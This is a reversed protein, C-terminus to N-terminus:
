KFFIYKKIKLHAFFSTFYIDRSYYITARQFISYVAALLAFTLAQFLFRLRSFKLTYSDLWILDLSPLKTIKFRNNIGYYQWWDKTQRLEENLEVRFPLLLRVDIKKSLTEGMKMIQYPHAKDSPIRANAIYLLRM